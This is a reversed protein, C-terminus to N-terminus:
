EEEVNCESQVVTFDGLLIRGKTNLVFGYYDDQEDVEVKIPVNNTNEYQIPTTIKNSSSKVPIDSIAGFIRCEYIKLESSCWPRSISRYTARLGLSQAVFCIDELLPKDTHQIKYANKSLWGDSDIIGALLLLRNRRSNCKYEFPIHKVSFLKQYTLEEWFLNRATNGIVVSVSSLHCDIEDLKKHAYEAVDDDEFVIRTTVSTQGLWLGLLYPHLTTTKRSFRVGTRYGAFYSKWEDSRQVYDCVPIEVTVKEPLISLYDMAINLDDFIKRNIYGEETCWRLLYKGSDTKEVTPPKVSCLVLKHWKSVRYPFGLAPIVRYMMDRGRILRKVTREASDEGMLKDGVKIHQVKKYRGDSLMLLTNLGFCRRSSCYLISM